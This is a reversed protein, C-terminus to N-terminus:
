LHSNKIRLLANSKLNKKYKLFKSKNFSDNDDIVGDVNYKGKISTDCEPCKHITSEGCIACFKKRHEPSQNYRATTQHGNLCVQQIDHYGM